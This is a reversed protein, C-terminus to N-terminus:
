AVRIARWGRGQDASPSILRLSCFLRYDAASSAPRPARGSSSSSGLWGDLGPDSAPRRSRLPQRAQSPAQRLLPGLWPPREGPFWAQAPSRLARRLRFFPAADGDACRQNADHHDPDSHESRCRHSAGAQAQRGRAHSHVSDSGRSHLHRAGGGHADINRSQVPHGDRDGGARGDGESSVTRRDGGSGNGMPAVTTAIGAMSIPSLGVWPLRGEAPGHGAQRPRGAPQTTGGPHSRRAMAKQLGPGRSPRRSM